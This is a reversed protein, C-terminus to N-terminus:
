PAVGVILLVPPHAIGRMILYIPAGAALQALETPTPQWSTMIQPVDNMIKNQLPLSLYNDLCDIHRTCNEIVNIMM